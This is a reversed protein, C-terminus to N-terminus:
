GFFAGVVPLKRVCPVAAGIIRLPDPLVRTWGLMWASASAAVDAAYGVAGGVSWSSSEVAAAPGLGLNDRASDIDSWLREMRDPHFGRSREDDAGNRRARPRRPAGNATGNRTTDDIPPVAASRLMPDCRNRAGGPEALIRAGHATMVAGGHKQEDREGADCAATGGIRPLRDRFSEDVFQEDLDILLGCALERGPERHRLEVVLDSQLLALRDVRRRAM